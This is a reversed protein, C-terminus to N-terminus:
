AEADPLNPKLEMFFLLEFFPVISLQELWYDMAFLAFLLGLVPLSYRLKRYRKVFFGFYLFLLSAIGMLGYESLAQDYVSNPSHVVSHLKESATFYSLYLALHNEAFAPQIYELRQPYSGAMGLGTTKFALKSSFCGPGAGTIIRAPNNRLWAATQRLALWKGPGHSVLAVRRAASIHENTYDIWRSRVANTDDRHQFRPTHISDQPLTLVPAPAVAALADTKQFPVTSISDICHRAWAERQEEITLPREIVPAPVPKAAAATQSGTLKALTDSLYNTNQPSVRAWFIIMPLCCLALVSKQMRNSRFIFLFAMCGLLLMNVANSATLVLGLLCAITIWWRGRQVSVLVGAACLVANTTSTDFSIGKIYDGTNIFYKQFNGQYRYPNLAGTEIIIAALQVLSACVNLLLFLEITKWLMNASLRKAFLFMGASALGAALWWANAWLFSWGYNTEGFRGAVLASCAGILMIAPYFLPFSIPKQLLTKLYARHHFLIWALAIAKVALKVHCLLLLSLLLSFDVQGAQDRFM